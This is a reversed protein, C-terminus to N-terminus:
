NQPIYEELESYMENDWILWRKFAAFESSDQLEKKLLYVVDEREEENEAEQYERVYEKFQAIDKRLAKRIIRAEFKKQDTTGYYADKVPDIAKGTYTTKGNNEATAFDAEIAAMLEDEFAKSAATIEFTKTVTQFEGTFTCFIQLVVM